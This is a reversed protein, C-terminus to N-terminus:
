ARSVLTDPRRGKLLVARLANVCTLGMATRAELTASGLHPTLVVNELALLGPLVEPENEFVRRHAEELDLNDYGAAYNAIVQLGPGAADMLERGVQETLMTLLGESGPPAELLEFSRELETLVPEPVNSM